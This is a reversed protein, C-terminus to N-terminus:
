FHLFMDCRNLVEDYLDELVFGLNRMATAYNDELGLNTISNQLSRGLLFELSLYAVRKCQKEKFYLQTDKWREIVRDRVSRLETQAPLYNIHLM